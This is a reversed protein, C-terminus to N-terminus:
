LGTNFFSSCLYVREADDPMKKYELINWGSQELIKEFEEFSFNNIWEPMPPQTNRYSVILNDGYSHLQQFFFYPYKLYEILGSCVLYHFKHELLPYHINNFDFKICDKSFCEKDIIQYKRDGLYGKLNGKGGGLDLVSDKTTIYSLIMKYREEWTSNGWFYNSM